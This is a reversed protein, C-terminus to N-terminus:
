AVFVCEHWKGVGIGVGSSESVLIAQKGKIKM